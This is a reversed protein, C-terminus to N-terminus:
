RCLRERVRIVTKASWPAGTPTEIKRANLEAAAARASMGSLEALIQVIAQARAIADAQRTENIVPLRPGGLKVGRAKAAALGAKTRDSIMRREEQAVAAYVNIMFANASPMDCAVFDVKREMLGSIFHVNRSLRDLKAIVLKAKHKRCAALAKELEPRDSRKGSEVETFEGALNWRGGNLYDEVAKRQAAIGNGNVGQHDTSVRYYAIFKGDV